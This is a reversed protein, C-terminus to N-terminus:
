SITSEHKTEEKYAEVVKQFMAYEDPLFKEMYERLEPSRNGFYEAIEENTSGDFVDYDVVEYAAAHLGDAGVYGAEQVLGGEVFLVLPGGLVEQIKRRATADRGHELASAASRLLEATKTRYSM